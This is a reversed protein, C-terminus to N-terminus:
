IGDGRSNSAGYMEGESPFDHRLNFADQSLVHVNAEEEIGDGLAFFELDEETLADYDYLGHKLPVYVRDPYRKWSRAEGNVRWREPTGDSNRNTLHHIVEGYRLSKAQELTIM